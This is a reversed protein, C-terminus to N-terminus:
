ILLDGRRLPLTQVLGGSSSLFFLLSHLCVHPNKERHDHQPQEREIQSDKMAFRVRDLHTFRQSPTRDPDGEREDEVGKDVIGASRYWCHLEQGTIKDFLSETDVIEKDEQHDEGEEPHRRLVLVLDEEPPDHPRKQHARCEDEGADGENLLKVPDDVDKSYEQDNGADPHDGAVIILDLRVLVRHQAEEPSEYRHRVM